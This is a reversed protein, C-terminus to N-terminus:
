FSASFVYEGDAPFTHLVSLGGRTGRPTGEIHVWQSVARPVAYTAQTATAAPDGVAMRSIESAATLYSDMVTASAMQVDAINDFNDSKTDPPLYADPDIELGLLDQISRAYEARNLRQFTRSGARPTRAAARDMRQELTEVLVALTDGGPRPVGPPPMMGLRLKSIMKEAAEAREAANAVDFTELSLNGTRLQDNHCIVCNRRVVGTLAEDSLDTAEAGRAAPRPWSPVVRVAGPTRALTSEPGTAQGVVVLVVGLLAGALVKM